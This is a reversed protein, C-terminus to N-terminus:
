LAALIERLEMMKKNWRPPDHIILPVSDRSRRESDIKKRAEVHDMNKLIDVIEELSLTPDVYIIREGHSLLYANAASFGIVKRLLHKLQKYALEHSNNTRPAGDVMKYNFLQEGKTRVFKMLAEIFEREITKCSSSFRYKRLKDRLKRLKKLGAIKSTTLDNLIGKLQKLHRKIAVLESAMPGIKAVMRALKKHLRDLTKIEGRTFPKKGIMSRAENILTFVDQLRDFLLLGSFSPDKQKKVWNALSLLVELVPDVFRGRLLGSELHELNAKFDKYQKVDYLKRLESRIETMVRSDLKKPELLILKFFHFHCLCHPIGPFVREIAKRQSVLADSIIAIVPAGIEEMTRAKIDQLFQVISEEKQNPLIRSGLKLKTRHDIAVYIGKKGKLPQMGDITLIIGGFKQIEQVLAPKYKQQCGIEYVKLVNEVTSISLPIGYTADMEKAIEEYTLKHKWRLECIKALVEYDYDHQPAHHPNETRVPEEGEGPCGLQGCQYYTIIVDYNEVLGVVERPRSRTTIRM